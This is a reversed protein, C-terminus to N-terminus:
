KLVYRVSISGDIFGGGWGVFDFYPMLDASITFPAGNFKYELGVIGLLGIVPVTRNYYKYCDDDPDQWDDEDCDKYYYRGQYFGVRAGIGYEWSLGDAKLGKQSHLEYLGAFNFGHWRTGIIGELAAKESIFHKITLGSTWGGRLGIGTQYTSGGSYSSGSNQRKDKDGRLGQAYSVFCFFSIFLTLTIKKM